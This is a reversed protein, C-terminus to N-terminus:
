EIVIDNPLENRDGTKIPFEKILINKIENLCKILGTKFNGQVFETNLHSTILEWTKQNIKSNIGKDAVVEFKREKFLIFILVGTKELTKQMELKYFEKIALERCALKREHFGRKLKFCIRIEGSTCSEIKGIENKLEELETKSLFKKIYNIAM